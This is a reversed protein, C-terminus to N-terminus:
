SNIIIIRIIRSHKRNRHNKIIIIFPNNIIIFKIILIILLLPESSIKSILLILSATSFSKMEQMSYGQVKSYVKERLTKSLGAGVRASLYGIIVSIVASGLACLLLFIGEKLVKKTTLTNNNFMNTINTTYEPLRLDIWVQLVVFAVSLLIMLWQKKNLDKFIKIM